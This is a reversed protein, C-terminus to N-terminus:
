HSQVPSISLLAGTKAPHNFGIVSSYERITRVGKMNLVAYPSWNPKRQSYRGYLQSHVGLEALKKHIQKMGDINVSKAQISRATVNVHAECDLFARIWEIYEQPAYSGPLRWAHHGFSATSLLFQCAKVDAIRVRFCERPSVPDYICPKVRFEEEFDVCFLNALDRNDPFFSIEYHSSRKGKEPRIRVYGDGSLWGLIRALSLSVSAFDLGGRFYLSSASNVAM